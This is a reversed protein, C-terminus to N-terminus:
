STESSLNKIPYKIHNMAMGVGHNQEYTNPLAGEVVGSGWGGVEISKDTTRIFTDHHIPEPRPPDKKLTDEPKKQRSLKWIRVM